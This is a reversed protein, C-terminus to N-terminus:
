RRTISQWVHVAHYLWTPEAECGTAEHDPKERDFTQEPQRVPQAPRRPVLTIRNQGGHCSDTHRHEHHEDPEQCGQEEAQSELKTSPRQHEHDDHDRQRTAPHCHFHPFRPFLLLRPLMNETVASDYPVVPVRRFDLFIAARCPKSCQQPPIKEVYRDARAHFRVVSHLM